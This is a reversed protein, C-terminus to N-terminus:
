NLKVFNFKIKYTEGIIVSGDKLRLKEITSIVYKNLEEYNSNIHEVKVYGNEDFTFEVFVTVDDNMTIKPYNVSEEFQTLIDKPVSSSYVNFSLAMFLFLAFVSILKKMKMKMKMIKQQTM